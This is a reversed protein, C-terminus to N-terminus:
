GIFNQEGSPASLASLPDAARLHPVERQARRLYRTFSYIV